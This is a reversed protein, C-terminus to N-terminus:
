QGQRDRRSEVMEDLLGTGAQSPTEGRDGAWGQVVRGVLVRHRRGPRARQLLSLPVLVLLLWCADLGYRPLLRRPEHLSRHLWELGSRQMWGPARTRRGAILDLSCGVGMAVAVSLQERHLDIWREQKPHGLAVLLIDARSAAILRLIEENRTTEHASVPPQHVGCITLGPVQELLRRGAETAVGGEGGLLFVRAGTGAAAELLRPVLDAGAVRGPLRHGLLRALWVVPAGDAVNLASRRLIGRVAADRRATVLFHLNVTCVQLLSGSRPASVIRHIAADIDVPDIPTGAVEFRDRPTASEAPGSAPRETREWRNARLGRALRLYTGVKALVFVPARLLARYASAPADAARLGVLVYAPIALCAVLWPALAWGPAAGLAVMVASLVTGMGVLLVLLGLPPVALDLAADLRSWDGTRVASVLLRPLRTKVVHFRGGEWRLRQTRAGRGRMAVPGFVRASAAFVPRVGALRLDMSYELDEASTFARWPHEELVRRSFLMGNGVLNCAMGLVARGAFRTRHFLLFAASRLAARPSEDEALALYEAQVVEAGAALHAALVAVLQPDAVSDADVVIVADARWPDALVRDLAWRLAQGKGRSSEDSRVLVEAGAAAALRATEDTCNDAIVITRRLRSPYTQASLSRLCRGILAAEDHAPVLVVIRHGAPSVLPPPRHRLAAVALTLLYLSAGATATGVATGALATLMGMTIM